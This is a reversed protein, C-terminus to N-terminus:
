KVQFINQELARLNGKFKKVQQLDNVIVLEIYLTDVVNMTRRQRWSNPKWERQREHLSRLNESEQYCESDAHSFHDVKTVVHM